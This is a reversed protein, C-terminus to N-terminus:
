NGPTFREPRLKQASVVRARGAYDAHVVSEQYRGSLALLRCVELRLDTGIELQLFGGPKLYTPAQAVIRRYFQLGDDGGDLALAPEWQRVDAPLRELDGSRIYPPNAVILDFIGAKDRVPEFVDGHLFRCRAEVKHRAANLRSITIAQPAIDTGWLELDDREKALSIAIAGSGSCLDLVRVPLNREKAQTELFSLTLEVLLETEPRPILVGPAVLFDLSWFERSGVIYAVPERRGRRSIFDCYRSREEETLARESGIYLDEKTASLAAALLVAADLPPNEIGAQRLIGAGKKLAARVIERAFNSPLDVRTADLMM